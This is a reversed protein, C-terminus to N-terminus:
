RPPPKLLLAPLPLAPALFVQSNELQIINCPCLFPMTIKVLKAIFDWGIATCLCAIYPSFIVATPRLTPPHAMKIYESLHRISIPADTVDTFWINTLMYPYDQGPDFSFVKNVYSICM